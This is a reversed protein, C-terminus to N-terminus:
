SADPNMATFKTSHPPADATHEEKDPLILLVILLFKIQYHLHSPPRPTIAQPFSFAGKPASTHCEPKKQKKTTQRQLSTM